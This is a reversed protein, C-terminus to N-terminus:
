CSSGSGIPYAAASWRSCASRWRPTPPCRWAGATRARAARPQLGPLDAGPAGHGAVGAAVAARVPQRDRLDGLDFERRAELGVVLFFLTMLGSNIWERLDLSLEDDGLRMALETRWFSEYSDRARPQGLAARARDGGALVGSSGAETRLFARVPAAFERRWSTRGSLLAPFDTMFESYREPNLSGSFDEAQGALLKPPAPQM